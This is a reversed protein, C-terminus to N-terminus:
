ENLNSELLLATNVLAVLGDELDHNSIQQSLLVKKGQVEIEIKVETEKVERM